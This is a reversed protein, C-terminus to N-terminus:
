YNKVLRELSFVLFFDALFLGFMLPFIIIVFFYFYCFGLRLSDLVTVDLMIEYAYLHSDLKFKIRKFSVFLLM